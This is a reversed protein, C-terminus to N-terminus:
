AIVSGAQRRARHNAVNLRNGCLEPMCYRRRGARSTDAFVGRCGPAACARFREHGLTRVVGLLATSIFAALEDALSAGPATPVHWQWKGEARLLVPALGARRLLVRGGAVAQDATETEMIGRVERRLLQVQFVDDTTPPLAADLRLEHAALFAALAEPTPLAEGTSERVTPSTTVLGTAVAAGAAYDDIPIHM